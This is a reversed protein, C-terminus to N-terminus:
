RSEATEVILPKLSGALRIRRDGSALDIQLREDDTTTGQGTLV